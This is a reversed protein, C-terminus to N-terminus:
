EGSPWQRIADFGWPDCTFNFLMPSATTLKDGQTGVRLIGDLLLKDWM